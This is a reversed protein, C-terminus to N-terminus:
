NFIDNLKNKFDNFSDSCVVEYPLSNWENITRTFFSYKFVDRKVKSLRYKYPHSGRTRTESNLQLYEDASVDTLNHSLKYVLTLRAKNRRNELSEWGLDKIM